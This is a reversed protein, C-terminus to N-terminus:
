HSPNESGGRDAKCTYEETQTTGSCRGFVAAEPLVASGWALRIDGLPEAVHTRPPGVRAPLGARSVASNRAFDEVARHLAPGLWRPTGERFGILVDDTVAQRAAGTRDVARATWRERAFLGAKLVHERDIRENVFVEGALVIIRLEKRSVFRLEISTQPADLRASTRADEFFGARLQIVPPQAQVRTAIVSSSASRPERTHSTGGGAGAGALRSFTDALQARPVSKDGSVTLYAQSAHTAEAPLQDRDPARTRLGELTGIAEYTGTLAAGGALGGTFGALRKRARETEETGLALTLRPAVLAFAAAALGREAQAVAAALEAEETPFVCIDACAQRSSALGALVRASASMWTAVKAIKRDVPTLTRANALGPVRYAIVAQALYRVHAGM